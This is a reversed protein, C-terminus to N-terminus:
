GIVSHCTYMSTTLPYNQKVLLCRHLRKRPGMSLTTEEFGEWFTFRIRGKATLGWWGNTSGSEFTIRHVYVTGSWSYAGASFCRWRMGKIGSTPGAGLVMFVAGRRQTEDREGEKRGSGEVALLETRGGHQGSEGRGM